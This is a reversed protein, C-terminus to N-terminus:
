RPCSLLHQCLHTYLFGCGGLLANREVCVDAIQGARLLWVDQRNGEHVDEVATGVSTTTESELLEHDNRRVFDSIKRFGVGEALIVRPCSRCESLGHALTGLYILLELRGGLLLIALRCSVDTILTTNCGIDLRGLLCQVENSPSDFLGTVSAL